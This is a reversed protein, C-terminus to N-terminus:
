DFGWILEAEFPPLFCKPSTRFHVECRIAVIKPINDRLLVYNKHMKVQKLYFLCM